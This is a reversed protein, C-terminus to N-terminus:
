APIRFASHEAAATVMAGRAAGSTGGVRDTTMSLVICGQLAFMLVALTIGILDDCTGTEPKTNM